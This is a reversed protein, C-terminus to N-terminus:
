LSNIYKIAKNNNMSRITRVFDISNGSWECSFCKFNNKEMIFFSQKGACIPCKCNFRGHLQRTNEFNFLKKIPYKIARQTEELTPERGNMISSISNVIEKFEIKKKPM